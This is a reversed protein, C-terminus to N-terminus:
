DQAARSSGGPKKLSKLLHDNEETLIEFTSKKIDKYTETSINKQMIKNTM